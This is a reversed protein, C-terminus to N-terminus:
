GHAKVLGNGIPPLTSSLMETGYFGLERATQAPDYPPVKKCLCADKLAARNTFYDTFALANIRRLNGDGIVFHDGYRDRFNEMEHLLNRVTRDTISFQEAASRITIIPNGHITEMYTIKGM